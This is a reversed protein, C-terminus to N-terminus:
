VEILAQIESEQKENLLRNTGEPVGREGMELSAEGVEKYAKVWIQVARVTVGVADAILTNKWGKKHLEVARRKQFNQVEASGRPQGM